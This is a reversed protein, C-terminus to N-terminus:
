LTTKSHLCMTIRKHMHEHFLLFYFFFMFYIKLEHYFFDVVRKSHYLKVSLFYISEKRISSGGINYWLNIIYGFLFHRYLYSPQQCAHDIGM